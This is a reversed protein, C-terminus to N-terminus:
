LHLPSQSRDDRMDALGFDVGKRAQQLLLHYLYRMEELRFNEASVEIVDPDKFTLLSTSGDSSPINWKAWHPRTAIQHGSSSRNPDLTNIFNILAAVAFTDTSNAPPFWMPMDSGHFAGFIPISKGRKSVWSWVNQTKSAQELFFRRAGTFYYDGEFASLRKFEPSLQNKTGTDFPAGQTPVDPYLTSLREIQTRTARLVNNSRIYSKFEANTTINLNSLSFATGEDDADGTSPSPQSVKAYSGESISVLPNRLVIDGDVRPGWINQVVSYSFLNTTRNVTAMFKDFPVRRLCGLTDKLRTCNNDAVLSDYHIQADLVSSAAIPSGSVMFAGRFFTSPEFRRPHLVHLATSEAGASFGGLVVRKPDGGFAAIYNQVWELAFIQDRLGLNTIGADLMERGGLFGFASLRYNPTVVIVPGDTVISREVMPRMDTDASNGFEFGGGYFWVFVPLKSQPSATRPKFVNLTLCDESIVNYTPIAFPPPVPVPSQAQQPCAAGFATVNQIGHLVHPTKPLEFRVASQAFPIGLFTSLNGDNIGRFVGYQLSVIPEPLAIAGIGYSFIAISLTFLHSIM